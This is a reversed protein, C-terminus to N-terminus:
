FLSLISKASQSALSLSNVALQQRTQLMLYEASTENMYALVLKDAGVELVDSLAETFNQRTQIISLHNGLEEQYNRINNLANSLEGISVEVDCIYQWNKSLLAEGFSSIDKGIISYEHNRNENFIIDM